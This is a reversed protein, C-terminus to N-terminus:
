LFDIAMQDAGTDALMQDPSLLRNPHVHSDRQANGYPGGRSQSPSQDFFVGDSDRCFGLDKRCTGAAHLRNQRLGSIVRRKSERSVPVSECVALEKRHRLKGGTGTPGCFLLKMRHEIGQLRKRRIM